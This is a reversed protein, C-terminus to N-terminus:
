GFLLLWISKYPFFFRFIHPINFILFESLKFGKMKLCAPGIQLQRTECFFYVAWNRAQRVKAEPMQSFLPLFEKRDIMVEDEALSRRQTHICRVVDM